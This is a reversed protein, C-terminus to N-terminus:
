RKQSENGIAQNGLVGEIYEPVQQLQIATQSTYTTAKGAFLVLLPSMALLSGMILLPAKKPSEGIQPNDGSPLQTPRFFLFSGSRVMAVLVLLSATLVIGLVTWGWPHKLASDLIMLKGLFGSLPPLGAMAVAAFFFGLGLWKSCQPQVITEFYDAAHGRAAKIMDALLFFAAALFTSHLLYFLGAALADPRNLGVAILITAVSTLVLYAVQELLGRAAMVGMAALLITILGGALLWPTHLSALNGAQDGFVTGHVRIIAYVGVKTMIAFLAAVPASTNAYARPLWLYLPFMAAKLCFVVLLLLGAAAILGSREAPAVSVKYAMDAINLTGVAGYLAGVAFLYLTSGLLNVVVYHLGARTRKKGSGHLMLGYSALLLVEFFVFLNFVDGTLFAGNLGFLQLQFLVHFHSGKEDVRQVSAYALAACAILSTLILMMASLRDLVLVIGFPAPWNGLHYVFTEGTQALLLMKIGLTVLASTLFLGFTRQFSLGKHRLVLQLLGGILPLLVPLIVWHIM